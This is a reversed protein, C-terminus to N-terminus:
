ARTINTAKPRGEPSPPPLVEFELSEGKKVGGEIGSRRLANIHIFVDPHGKRRLFGYGKDEDFFKVIGRVRETM